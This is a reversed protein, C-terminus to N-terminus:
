LQCYCGFGGGCIFAPAVHLNAPITFCAGGAPGAVSLLAEVKKGM